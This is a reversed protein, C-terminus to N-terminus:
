RFYSQSTGVAFLHGVFYTFMRSFLVKLLSTNPEFQSDDTDPERNRGISISDIEGGTNERRGKEKDNELDGM